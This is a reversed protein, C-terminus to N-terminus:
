EDPTWRELSQRLTRILSLHAFGHSLNRLTAQHFDKNYTASGDVPFFVRFDRMFASRATTECCLHTLVGTVVVQRVMHRHLFSELDTEFFADYRSKIVIHARDQPLESTIRSLPSDSQILDNWWSAMLGANEPTNIHRTLIVPRRKELFATSLAEIRRLIEESGPVFAHSLPDLFYRQMDLVVLAAEGPNFLSHTIQGEEGFQELWKDALADITRHSFYSEKMQTNSM